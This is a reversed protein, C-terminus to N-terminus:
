ASLAWAVLGWLVMLLGTAVIVRQWASAMLLSHPTRLPQTHLHPSAPHHWADVTDQTKVSAVGWQPRPVRPSSDPGPTM